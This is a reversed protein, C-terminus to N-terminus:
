RLLFGLVIAVLVVAGLVRRFPSEGRAIELLSWVVLSVAAIVTLATGLAGHPHFVLRILTAALWVLLPPNPPQAVVVDGTEPNRFFRSLASHHQTDTPSM